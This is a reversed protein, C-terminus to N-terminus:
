GFLKLELIGLPVPLVPCFPFYFNSAKSFYWVGKLLCNKFPYINLAFPVGMMEVRPLLLFIKLLYCSVDKLLLFSPNVFVILLTFCKRYKYFLYLSFLFYEPQKEFVLENLCWNGINLTYLWLTAKSAKLIYRYKRIVSFCKFLTSWPTYLKLYCHLLSSSVYTLIELGCVSRCYCSESVKSFIFLFFLPM